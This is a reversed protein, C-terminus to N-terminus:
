IGSSGFGNKNREIKELVGVEELAPTEIKQILLQAIKQDKAIHYIDGSLNIVVVKIEGRYGADIVGGATKLGGAALGNKDWILGVCGKPITLAIGTGITATENEYLTCNENAYLDFGADDARACTPLKANLDLKQAKIAANIDVTPIFNLRALSRAEKEKLQLLRPNAEKVDPNIATIETQNAEAPYAKAILASIDDTEETSIIKKVKKWIDAQVQEITQNANIIEWNREQALRLHTSRVKDTLEENQEHQHNAEIGSTFRHGDFLIALDEKLLHSNIFKLFQEDVGTGIGWALGTGIYDEAVINIGNALKEKLIPEYQTRNFTYLIQVERPTLKHFNGQRLYDNILTGSPALDYLPYKLYEAEVGTQRLKEVLLKAQITKGLNNIGYLVILKGCSKPTSSDIQNQSPSFFM